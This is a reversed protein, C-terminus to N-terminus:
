KPFRLQNSKRRTSLHKLEGPERLKRQSLANGSGPKGMRIDVSRYRSAIGRPKESSVGDKMPKHCWPMWRIGKSAQSREDIGKKIQM